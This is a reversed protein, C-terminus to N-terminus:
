HVFTKHKSLNHCKNNKNKKLITLIGSQGPARDKLIPPAAGGWTCATLLPVACQM